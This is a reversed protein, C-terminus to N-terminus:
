QTGFKFIIIFDKHKFAKLFIYHLHAHTFGIFLYSFSIWPAPILNCNKFITTKFILNFV